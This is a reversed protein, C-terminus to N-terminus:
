RNVAAVDDRSLVAVSLVRVVCHVL